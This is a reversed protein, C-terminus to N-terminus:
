ISSMLRVFSFVAVNTVRVEVAFSASHDSTANGFRGLMEDIVEHM